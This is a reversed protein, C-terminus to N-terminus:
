KNEPAGGKTFNNWMTGLFGAPKQQEAFSAKRQSAGADQTNRKMNM